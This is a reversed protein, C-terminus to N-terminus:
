QAVSLWRQVQAARIPDTPLWSHDDDYKTAVYVLIAVSDAIIRGGDDLVPVTGYPNLKLFAARKHEGGALDIERLDFQLGLLRLLLEARLSYGSQQFGYLLMPGVPKM